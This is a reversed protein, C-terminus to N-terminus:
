GTACPRAPPPAQSADDPAPEPSAPPAAKRMGIEALVRELRLRVSDDPHPLSALKAEAAAPGLAVIQGSELQVRMEGAAEGLVLLGSAALPLDRRAGCATM